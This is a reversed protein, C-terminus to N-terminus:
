KAPYHEELVKTCSEVATLLGGGVGGQRAAATFGAIIADWVSQPVKLDVDRDTVVEVYREGFAVFLLIGTKRDTQALVRAAFCRHAMDRAHAHRIHRPVCWLRLPLWDLLFATGAAVAAVVFTATHLTLAPWFLALVALASLGAAAGYVIPFLAYRDSVHVTEVVLRASTRAEAAEVAAHLRTREDHSLKTM